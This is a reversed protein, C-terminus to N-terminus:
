GAPHGADAEDPWYTNLGYHAYIRQEDARTLPGRYPPASTIEKVWLSVTLTRRRWDLSRVFHPPMLVKKGPWFNRTDVVLYRIRFSPYDVLMDELHGVAGDNARLHYGTVERYSRLHPDGRPRRPPLPPDAPLRPMTSSPTRSGFSVFGSGAWDSPWGYYGPYIEAQQRVVPPDSEPAPSLEVERRTLALEVAKHDLDVVAVAESPVVVQRGLWTATSVVVNRVEWSRDHLMFDWLRGLAGDRASPEFSKLRSLSILM